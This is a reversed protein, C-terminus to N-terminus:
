YIKGCRVCQHRGDGTMILTGQCATCIKTQESTPPAQHPTPPQEQYISTDQEPYHQPPPSSYQNQQNQYIARSQDFPTNTLIVSTGAYRDMLKQKPDGETFFGILLDIFLFISVIKSINRIVVKGADLEGTLAIVKLNMIRKGISAGMTIETILFYVFFFVGQLGIFPLGIPPLGLMLLSLISVPVSVIVYDIIIAIFRKIWHDRLDEDTSILDMATPM